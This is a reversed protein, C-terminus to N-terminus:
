PDFGLNRFDQESMTKLQEAPVAAIIEANHWHNGWTIPRCLQLMCYVFFHPYSDKAEEVESMNAVEEDPCAMGAEKAAPILSFPYVLM